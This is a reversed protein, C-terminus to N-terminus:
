DTFIEPHFIKALEELGYVLKPGAVTILNEDVEYIQNTRVADIENWGSRERITQPTLGCGESMVGKSIIIIEPNAKLIEETSTDVYQGSFDAFVNAGGAIAILENVVSGAGYSGFGGNFYYEVYVTPKTAGSTKEAIEQATAEVNTVFDEAENDYGTVQGILSIDNLLGDLGDHTLVVVTKGLEALKEAVSLQYGGKSLILQPDLSIVTEISVQSFTGVVTVEGSDIKDQIEPSYNSYTPAGVIKEQIGLAFLIETCSPAISVIREPYEEIVVTRDVDDTITLPSTLQKPLTFQQWALVAIIGGIILIISVLAIVKRDM